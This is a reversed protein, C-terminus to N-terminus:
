ARAKALLFLRRKGHALEITTGFTTTLNPEEAPTSEVAFRNPIYEYRLYELDRERVYDRATLGRSIQTGSIVGMKACVSSLSLLLHGVDGHQLSRAPVRSWSACCWSSALPRRVSVRRVARRLLREM